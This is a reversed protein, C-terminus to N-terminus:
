KSTNRVFINAIKQAVAFRAYNDQAVKRAAEALRNALVDDQILAICAEAMSQPEDRLLIQVNDEFHLGEAGLTTSVIPKAFAAAEILKVRTGGGSLIPCVVVRISDYLEKLDDVFGTFEVGPPPSPFHRIREPEPGAVILRAEPRKARILGWVNDIFYEVGLRNPAYGYQGLIMVTEISTLPRFEPISVANPIVEIRKGLKGLVSKDTESCVFTKKALKMSRREGTKIAPLQLNLLWKSRWKPPMAINRTFAIHEIDDMDFFVPPLRRRTLLLPPMCRLRQVFIFSPNAELCTELAAIQMPGSTEQYDPIHHFNLAPYLYRDWANKAESVAFRPSLTVNIETNWRDRLRQEVLKVSEPGTDIHTPVYFLADFSGCALKLAEAFMDLRRFIGHSSERPEGPLAASVLLPKSTEPM